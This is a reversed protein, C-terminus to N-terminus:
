DRVLQIVHGEGATDLDSFMLLRLLRQAVDSAVTPESYSTRVGWKSAMRRGWHNQGICSVGADLAHGRTTKHRM